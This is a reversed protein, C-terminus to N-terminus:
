DDSRYGEKVMTEHVATSFASVEAELLARLWNDIKIRLVETEAPSVDRIFVELRQPIAASTAVFDPGESEPRASWVDLQGRRVVTVPHQGQFEFMLASQGARRFGEPPSQQGPHVKSVGVSVSPPLGLETVLPPLREQLLAAIRANLSDYETHSLGGRGALDQTLAAVASSATGRIGLGSRVLEITDICREAVFAVFPLPEGADAAELADLYTDKQDAFIVLPVGPRRYLFVSALARAVRGNGDAFPHVRVFAYHAYAAQVVPHAAEFGPSRVEAVLRAMEAPTDTAPAYHFIRGTDANTPNNPMTKYVGKPLPQREMGVATMVDYTEQSACLTEHLQRIWSESIPAAGTVLDLVMDYGRLADAISREVHEGHQKLAAEWTATQEAITRTFGRNTTYLGEIAGTDVAAYRTAVRVAAEMADGTSAARSEELLAAFRDVVGADFGDCWGAVPPFPAYGAVDAESMDPLSDRQVSTGTLRVRPGEGRPAYAHETTIDLLCAGVSGV